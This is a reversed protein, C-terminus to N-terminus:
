LIQVVVRREEVERQLRTGGADDVPQEGDRRLEAHLQQAREPAPVGLRHAPRLASDVPAPLGDMDVGGEPAERRGHVRAADGGM